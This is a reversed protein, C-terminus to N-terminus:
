RDPRGQTFRHGGLGELEHWADQDMECLRDLTVRWGGGAAETRGYWYQKLDAPDCIASGDYGQWELTEARPWSFYRASPGWFTVVM